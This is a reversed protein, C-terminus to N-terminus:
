WFLWGVTAINLQTRRGDKEIFYTIQWYTVHAPPSRSGFKWLLLTACRIVNRQNNFFEVAALGVGFVALATPRSDIRFIRGYVKCYRRWTFLMSQCTWFMCASPAPGRGCQDSSPKFVPFMKLLKLKSLYMRHSINLAQKKVDARWVLEDSQIVVLPWSKRSLSFFRNM